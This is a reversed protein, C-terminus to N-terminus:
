ASRHIDSKVVGEVIYRVMPHITNHGLETKVTYRQGDFTDEIIQNPRIKVPDDTYLKQSNETYTGEPLYKLDKNSLPMIIGKFTKVAKDVPRSQGGPGDHVFTREYVKIPHLLARPLRPTAAFNM